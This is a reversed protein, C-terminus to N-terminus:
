KVPEVKYGAKRLLTIVGNDGLLHGAGVAFFVASHAMIPKMRPIWRKNRDDLFAAMDGGLEKTKAIKNYLEPLDQQTYATVLVDYDSRNASFNKIDNLMGQAVTDDPLSGLVSIQESAAELGLVEKGQEKATQMIREEYSIADKCRTSKMEILSQLAIPKMTQFMGIDMKLSDKIFKKLTAYQEATYYDKLKKGTTDMFGGSAEMLVARDDLDMEFCVKDSAALADKMNNTWLYKDPCILHITGFLYSPKTLGNGSVRWLLSKDNEDAGAKGAFLLLFLTSLLVGLKKM